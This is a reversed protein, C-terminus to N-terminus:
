MRQQRSAFTTILRRIIVTKSWKKEDKGTASAMHHIQWVRNYILSIFFTYRLTCKKYTTEM